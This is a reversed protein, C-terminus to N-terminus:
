QRCRPAPRAAAIRGTPCNFPRADGGAAVGATAKLFDRRKIDSM